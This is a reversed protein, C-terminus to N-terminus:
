TLLTPGAAVCCCVIFVRLKAQLDRNTSAMGRRRSPASAPIPKSSIQVPTSDGRSGRQSTPTSPNPKQAHKSTSHLRMRSQQRPFMSFRGNAYSALFPVHSSVDEFVKKVRAEKERRIGLGKSGDLAISVKSNDVLYSASSISLSTDDQLLCCAKSRLLRRNPMMKQMYSLCLLECVQPDYPAPPSDLWGASFRDM